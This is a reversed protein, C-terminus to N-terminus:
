AAAGLRALHRWLYARAAAINDPSLVSPGLWPDNISFDAGINMLRAIAAEKAAEDPPEYTAILESMADGLASLAPAPRCLHAFFSRGFALTPKGMLYAELGVTGTVTVVLAAGAILSRSDVAPHLLTLGPRWRLARYVALPRLGYMAPHEKVVLRYGPPLNLLLADVARLQDVYYPQLGNM